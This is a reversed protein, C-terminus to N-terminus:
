ARAGIHTTPPGCRTTDAPRMCAAHVHEHEHVRAHVHMCACVHTCTRSAEACMAWSLFSGLPLREKDDAGYVELLSLLFNAQKRGDESVFADIRAMALVLRRLTAARRADGKFIRGGIHDLVAM